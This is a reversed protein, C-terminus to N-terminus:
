EHDTELGFVLLANGGRQQGVYSYGANVVMLDGAILPGHADFAGGTAQPQNVAPYTQWADFEWLVEGDVASLGRLYGDMSGIFVMDPTALPAASLGFVCEAQDCRDPSVYHWVQQGTAIDLAYLGPAAEGPSPFGMIAKDSIPVFLVGSAENAAMGWHVGGIIGGRGLRVEWEVDGTLPHIAYVQASKQGAILLERGQGNGLLMTAAGFDVDPGMPDPCNPHNLAVINCAATYADNATFQRIWRVSGDAANVAFIADSTDTTPHSYNQGTGFFLTDSAAHYSPAGWVTASNPGYHQVFGWHSGTEQPPESITPLYWLKNGTRLDFAAFGGSTTCCGYLPNMALAVEYSSIPVFVRSGVVLPSGSYWALPDENVEAHWILDGSTANLAYVGLTRDNFILAPAGDIETPILATSIEGEHRYLWRECGSDRDLAVVGRGGDGVYLTDDTVLPYSRPTDTSLAYSWRLKLQEVNNRNIVTRPQFRTNRADIGWSSAYADLPTQPPGCTEAAFGATPQLLLVLVYLSTCFLVRM